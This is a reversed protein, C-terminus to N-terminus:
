VMCEELHTEGGVLDKIEGTEEVGQTMMVVLVQGEQTRMEVLDKMDLKDVTEEM